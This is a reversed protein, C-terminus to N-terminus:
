TTPNILIFQTPQVIAESTNDHSMIPSASTTPINPPSNIINLSEHFAKPLSFDLLPDEM